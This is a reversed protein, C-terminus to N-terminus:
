GEGIKSAFDHEDIESRRPTWRAALLNGIEFRKVLSESRLAQHNDSDRILFRRFDFWEDAVAFDAKGNKEIRSTFHIFRKDDLANRLAKDVVAVAFEHRLRDVHSRAVLKQFHKGLSSQLLFGATSSAARAPRRLLEM